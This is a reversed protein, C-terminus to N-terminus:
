SASSRMLARKLAALGWLVAASRHSLAAGDGCALIAAMWRRHAFLGPYGLAYVGRHIRHLQGRAVRRSIVSKSFGASLLQALSVVGHQRTAIKAAKAEPSDVEEWM